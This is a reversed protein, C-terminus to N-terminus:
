YYPEVYKVYKSPVLRYGDMYYDRMGGYGTYASERYYSRGIEWPKEQFAGTVYGTQHFAYTPYRVAGFFGGQFTPGNRQHYYTSYYGYDPYTDYYSGQYGPALFNYGYPGFEVQNSPFSGMEWDYNYASAQQITIVALVAIVSFYLFRALKSHRM